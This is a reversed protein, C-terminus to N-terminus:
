SALTHCWFSTNAQNPQEFLNLRNTEKEKNLVQASDNVRLGYRLQVSWGYHKQEPGAQM